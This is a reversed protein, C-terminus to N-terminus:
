STHPIIKVDKLVLREQMILSLKEQDFKFLYIENENYYKLVHSPYLSEMNEESNLDIRVLNKKDKNKYSNIKETEIEEQSSIVKYIKGKIKLKNGSFLATFNFNKNIM